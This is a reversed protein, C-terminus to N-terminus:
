GSQRPYSLFVTRAAGGNLPPDPLGEHLSCRDSGNYISLQTGCELVDCVRGPEHRVGLRRGQQLPEIRRTM